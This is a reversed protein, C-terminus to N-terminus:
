IDKGKRTTVTWRAGDWGGTLYDGEMLNETNLCVDIKGDGRPVVFLIAGGMDLKLTRRDIGTISPAAGRLCLTCKAM